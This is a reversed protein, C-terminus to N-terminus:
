LTGYLLIIGDDTYCLSNTTALFSTTAANFNEVLLQIDQQALLPTAKLLVALLLLLIHKTPIHM